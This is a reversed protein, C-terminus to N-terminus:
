GGGFRFQQIASWDAAGEALQTTISFWKQGPKVNTIDAIFENDSSGQDMKLGDNTVWGKGLDGIIWCDANASLSVLAALALLLFSFYNKKM